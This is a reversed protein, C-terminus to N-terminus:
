LNNKVFSKQHLTQNSKPLICSPMLKDDQEKKNMDPKKRKMIDSFVCIFKPISRMLNLILEMKAFVDLEYMQIM